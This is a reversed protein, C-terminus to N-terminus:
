KCSKKFSDYSKVGKSVENISDNKNKLLSNNNKKIKKKFNVPIDKKKSIFRSNTKNSLNRIRTKNDNIKVKAIFTENQSNYESTKKSYNGSTQIRKNRSEFLKSNHDNSIYLNSHSANKKLEMSNNKIKSIIRSKSLNNNHNNNNGNGIDINHSLLYNILNKNDNNENHNHNINNNNSNKVIKKITKIKKSTTNLKKNDDKFNDKINRSNESLVGSKKLNKTQDRSINTASNVSNTTPNMHMSSMYALNFKENKKMLTYLNSYNIVNATRFLSSIIQPIYQSNFYKKQFSQIILNEITENGVIM